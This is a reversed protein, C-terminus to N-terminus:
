ASRRPSSCWTRTTRPSAPCRTSRSCTSAARTTWACTSAPWTAATSRGSPPARSRRSRRSSPRPSRPRASTTSTSRGSRSSRTTTSRASSRSTRSASRWRRCCARASTASCASRSSAAPKIYEEVLAPQRYMEICQEQGRRAARGRHRGREDLRHGQLQGRRQAQRHAPVEHGAVAARAGDGDAPVQPHPHRAAAAGEQGAGQRARHGPHGLGLRHVPHRAARVARAGPGRPQPRRRGRRHQLHPRRRGRGAGAAPRAHGRPPRRHPGAAGARQRHRHHDRASGVRGRRRRRQSRKVNYTFGVRIPAQKGRRTAVQAPPPWAPACPAGREPDRRDLGPVVPRDARHGRVPVLQPALLPLSNVELLYIRGDPSVRFDLRALDRLGLTRVSRPRRDPAPPRRRRAPINAPCRYSSGQRARRNKLKTTTSTSRAARTQTEVLLEVPMLLGGDHGIGDVYGVVVDIGEIYEEILVGDPYGRLAARVVSALERPEKVVSGAFAAYGRACSPWPAATSARPAARSTRSSSSRSLGPGPGREVSRTTTARAHHARRAPHRHRGQGVMLKTVWKDVTIRAPTPTPGPIRCARARRVAGPLAGRAPPRGSGRRHQLRHRTSAELRELLTAPRARSRSRRSRTDPLRSSRRRDANVTEASDFEADRDAYKAGDYRDREKDALRDTLRLNHTFAVKM